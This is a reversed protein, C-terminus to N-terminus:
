FGFFSQLGEMTIEDKCGCKKCTWEVKHKLKPMLEFFQTLKLYQEQSLNEIFELLEKQTHDEKKYVNEKDFIYEIINIIADTAMDMQSKGETNLSADIAMNVNPYKLKMGILRPDIKTFKQPLRKILLSDVIPNHDVVVEDEDEDKPQFDDPNVPDCGGMLELIYDAHAVADDNPHVYVFDNM